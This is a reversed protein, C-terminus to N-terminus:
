EYEHFAGAISKGRYDELNTVPNIRRVKVIKFVETIWNPTYSKKFITKYKSVRVLDGIKFKAPGAINIVSYVTALLPDCVSREINARTTIRYSDHCSMWGNTLDTFMKWMADKLTRNFREVVSYWCRFTSYHNINHKKMLRQMDTNYFKKGMNAHKESM